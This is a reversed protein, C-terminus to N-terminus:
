FFAFNKSPKGEPLKKGDPNGACSKKGLKGSPPKKGDPNELSSKVVSSMKIGEHLINCLIKVYFSFLADLGLLSSIM